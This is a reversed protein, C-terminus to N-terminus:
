DFVNEAMEAKVWAGAGAGPSASAGQNKLLEDLSSYGLLEPESAAVASNGKNQSDGSPEVKIRAKDTKLLDMIDSYGMERAWDLPSRGLQM